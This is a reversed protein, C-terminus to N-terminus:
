WPANVAASYNDTYVEEKGRKTQGYETLCKMIIENIEVVIHVNVVGRGNLGPRRQFPYCGGKGARVCAVPM